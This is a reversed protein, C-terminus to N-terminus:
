GARRPARRRFSRSLRGGPRAPRGAIWRGEPGPNRTPRLRRRPSSRTLGPRPANNLDSSSSQFTDISSLDTQVRQYAPRSGRWADGVSAAARLGKAEGSVKGFRLVGHSRSRTCFSFAVRRGEAGGFVYLRRAAAPPRLRHRQADDYPIAPKEGVVEALGAPLGHEVHEFPQADAGDDGRDLGGVVAGDLAQLFGAEAGVEEARVAVLDVAHEHRQGVEAVLAGDRVRQAPGPQVHGHEHVGELVGGVLHRDGVPAVAEAALHAGAVVQALVPDLVRERAAVGHVGLALVERPVQAPEDPHAADHARQLVGAQALDAGARRGEVGDAVALLQQLAGADRDLREVERLDEAPDAAQAVVLRGDRGLDLFHVGVGADVADRALAQQLHRLQAHGDVPEHVLALEVRRRDLAPRREFLEVADHGARGHAHHAVPEHRAGALRVDDARERHVHQLFGGRQRRRQQVPVVVEAVVLVLADDEM